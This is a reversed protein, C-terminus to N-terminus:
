HNPSKKKYRVSNILFVGSILIVAALVSQGTVIEDRFYYGLILAIIPNVYTNTVVKEPSVKKLLYNFSTFAIISGFIILFSLSIYTLSKLGWLNPLEEGIAIAIMFNALGGVIMQIGSNFFTNKPLQAKSVFISGAGWALMSFLIAAVGKWQNENSIIANQSVLLYIGLMGMFIGIFTKVLPRKGEVLWLMLVIILPEGAIILAALGTDVYNLAWIAGGTGLGLFLVGAIIANRVELRSPKLDNRFFLALLLLILIGALVYRIGCVSFAPLEELTFAAFLYTSGWIVYISLFAFLILLFEKRM